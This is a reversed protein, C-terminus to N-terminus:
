FCIATTPTWGEWNTLRWWQKAQEASGAASSAQHRGERLAVQPRNPLHLSFTGMGVEPGGQCIGVTSRAGPVLALLMNEHVKSPLLLAPCPCALPCGTRPAPCAKTFPRPHEEAGLPFSPGRIVLDKPNEFIGWM